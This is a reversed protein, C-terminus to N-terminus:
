HGDRFNVSVEPIAILEVGDLKTTNEMCDQVIECARSVDEERVQCILQDHIQCIVQGVINERQFRRNIQLAARNVISASYSQIQFNLCNNLANKYDRYLSTVYEIGYDKELEKRFRWDEILKDGLAAYIEKAQPLHRVRGVKNKIYGQEKVFKRSNERWERLQPFGDLYGEVLREGEKRDVGLSMALAYGSMGYPVGLSYAKATQRKVPDVKKLFNPAKTHASVGELKETKIAIHSYFDLDNNFIDKLGQDGAVTAFVRPELSAYDTDLVKTGEDAIFFARVLNTYNMIMEEDQGPELPKPLQQMDSGYRGSVTGNQKFYPYFKGDEASDLFRDVYATKIKTLKNYLRLHKAWTYKDKISQIMDEDFQAKGKTTSSIPKEGLVNFAIKGMQDKSQINFFQGSNDEKWLSLSTRVIQDKTLYTTDGTILFDKIVSVPLGSVAAKNITFKGTKESKPLEISNHELLRQAFIGKSKPPYAEVAQDIIWGRVKPEKLLEQVVLVSQEELDKAIRDRTEQILPIDLRIGHEEMPITVERYVPMVEEEFFFKDLGEKILVELFHKYIRLTLDTDAAAYKSLIELDAKYIEYSEKSTSGGNAKISDKLAVQEENAEKEVDLGIEKQVMIAIPKLGFPSGYGFAGEEKVTHVLLSTDAHLSPLLNIGYFCKVYRLDFSANHCILKKNVLQNIVFKTLEHAGKGEIQVEELRDVNWIMTPMYFGKGVEGSVSFGIIRGKRPNLSDTETDFAIYENERIHQILEKLTEKSNVTVYSKQQIM